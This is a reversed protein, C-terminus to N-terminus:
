LQEWEEVHWPHGLESHAGLFTLMVLQSTVASGHKRPLGKDGMEAMLM